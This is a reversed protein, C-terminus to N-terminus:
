LLIDFHCEATAWINFSKLIAGKIFQAKKSYSALFIANKAFLM